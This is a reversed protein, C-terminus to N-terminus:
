AAEGPARTPEVRGSEDEPRTREELLRRAMLAIAVALQAEDLEVLPRSRV